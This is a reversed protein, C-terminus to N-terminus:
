FYLDDFEGTDFDEFGFEESSFDTEQGDFGGELPTSIWYMWDRRQHYLEEEVVITIDRGLRATLFEWHKQDRAAIGLFYQPPVWRKVMVEAQPDTTYWLPICRRCEHEYFMCLFAWSTALQWLNSKDQFCRSSANTKFFLCDLEYLVRSDILLVAWGQDRDVQDQLEERKRCFMKYNPFSISLSIHDKLRDFREQDVVVYQLRRRNLEHRSLLGHELISPLNEFPTFHVLRQIGRQAVIKRIEEKERNKWNEEEVSKGQVADRESGGCVYGAETKGCASDKEIEGRTEGVGIRECFARLALIFDKCNSFYSSLCRTQFTRRNGDSFEIILYLYKEGSFAAPLEIDVLTGEGFRRHTLRVGLGLLEEKRELIIDAYTHIWDLITEDAM